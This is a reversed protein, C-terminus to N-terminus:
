GARSRALPDFSSEQRILAAVLYEDLGFEKAEALVVPRLPWPYIARLVRPHNLTLTRAARWGLSIAATTRGRDILAEAFDLADSATSEEALLWSVLAALLDLEAVNRAVARSTGPVAAAVVPLPLSARERAVAGFYGLSDVRALERWESAAAVTDRRSEALSAISYRASTQQPGRADVEQRYWRLAGTTDKLVLA